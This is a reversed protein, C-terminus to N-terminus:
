TGYGPHAQESDDAAGPTRPDRSMGQDARGTGGPTSDERMTSDAIGYHDYVATLLDGGVTDGAAEPAAGITAADFPVTVQGEGIRAEPVPLPVLVRRGQASVAVVAPVNDSSHAFVEEIAGVEETGALLRAGQIQKLKAEDLM